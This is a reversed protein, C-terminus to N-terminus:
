WWAGAYNYKHVSMPFQIPAFIIHVIIHKSVWSYISAPWIHTDIEAMRTISYVMSLWICFVMRFSSFSFLSSFSLSCMDCLYILLSSPRSDSTSFDFIPKKRHLILILTARAVRVAIVATGWDCWIDTLLIEPWTDVWSFNNNKCACVRVWQAFISPMYAGTCKMPDMQIRCWRDRWRHWTVVMGELCSRRSHGWSRRGLILLRIVKGLCWRHRWGIWGVTTGRHCCWRSCMRRGLSPFWRNGIGCCSVLTNWIMM